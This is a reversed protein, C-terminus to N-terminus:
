RAEKFAGTWQHKVNSRESNETCSIFTDIFIDTVENLFKRGEDDIRNKYWHITFARQIIMDEAEAAGVSRLGTVVKYRKEQYTSNVYLDDLFNELTKLDFAESDTMFFNEDRACAQIYEKGSIGFEKRSR